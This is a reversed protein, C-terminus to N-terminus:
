MYSNPCHTSTFFLFWVLGRQTLSELKVGTWDLDRSLNDHRSSLPALFPLARPPLDDLLGFGEVFEGVQTVRPRRYVTSRRFAGGSRSAPLLCRGLAETAYAVREQSVDAVLAAARGRGRSSPPALDDTVRWARATRPREACVLARADTRRRRRRAAGRGRRRGGARPASSCSCAASPPATTTASSTGLAACARLHGDAVAGRKSVAASSARDLRLEGACRLPRRRPYAELYRHIGGRLKAVASRLSRLPAARVGERVPHRGHLVVRPRGGRLREARPAGRRPKVTARARARPSADSRREYGNRVDLLVTTAADRARLAADFEEPRGAGRGRRGAADAGPPRAPAALGARRARTPSSSCACRATSSAARSAAHGSGTSTPSARARAMAGVYQARAVDRRRAHRQRRARAVRVRGTLALASCLQRQEDAFADPDAIAVYKYFLIASHEESDADSDTSSHVDSSDSDANTASLVHSAM